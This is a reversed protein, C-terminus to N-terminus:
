PTSGPAQEDGYISDDGGGGYIVDRGAGGLLLDNGDEGVIYDDGEDGSLLDGAADDAASTVAAGRAAAPPAAPDRWANAFLHDNGSGGLVWDRGLGAEVWDHGNAMILINQLENAVVHDPACLDDALADVGNEALEEVIFWQGNDDPGVLTGTAAPLAAPQLVIGLDGDHFNEIWVAAADDDNGAGTVRLRPSGDWATTLSYYMRNARDYWSTASTQLWNRVPDAM